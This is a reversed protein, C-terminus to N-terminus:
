RTLLGGVFADGDLMNYQGFDLEYEKCTIEADKEEVALDAEVEASGFYRSNFQRAAKTTIWHRFCEPMEYFERLRIINVVISAPFLDSATGVDYVYGGRNIYTTTGGTSLVSLYSDLYSILNTTTDPPLSQSNEINFTWGKSQIRRNVQNLITRATAIDANTDVDFSNVPAEGIASLVENVAALEQPEIATVERFNGNIM